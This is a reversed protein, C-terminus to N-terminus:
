KISKINILRRHAVVTSKSIHNQLDKTTVRGNIYALHIAKIENDSLTEWVEETIKSSIQETNRIRRMVINNTLLLSLATNNPESFKPEGLFFEKMEKYIRKVGENLEKVWGFESLIRAVKPNTSYRTKKMNQLNVINPLRGPSLIELRDDYMVVKIHEGTM